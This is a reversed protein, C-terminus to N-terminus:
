AARRERRGRLGRLGLVLLILASAVGLIVGNILTSSSGGGSRASIAPCDGYLPDWEATRGGRIEDANTEGPGGPLTFRYRLEVSRRLLADLGGDRLLRDGSCTAQLLEGVGGRAFLDFGPFDGTREGLKVTLANVLPAGRPLDTVEDHRPLRELSRRASLLAQLEAVSGVAHRTSLVLMGSEERQVAVPGGVEGPAAWGPEDLWPAIQRAVAVPDRGPTFGLAQQAEEDLALTVDVRGVGERDIEADVTLRATCGGVALLGLLIAVVAAARAAASM